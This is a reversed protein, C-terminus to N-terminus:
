SPWLNLGHHLMGLAFGGRERLVMGLLAKRGANSNRKLPPRQRRWAHVEADTTADTQEAYRLTTQLNKHGLRKRITSLSVGGNILETANHHVFSVKPM